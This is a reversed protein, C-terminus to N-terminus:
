YVALLPVSLYLLTTINDKLCSLTNAIHLSKEPTLLTLMEMKQRGTLTKDVEEGNKTKKRAKKNISLNTHETLM